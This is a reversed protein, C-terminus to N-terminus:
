EGDKILEYKHNRAEITFNKNEGSEFTKYIREIIGPDIDTYFLDAPELIEGGDDFRAFDDDIKLRFKM